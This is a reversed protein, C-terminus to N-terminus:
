GGASADTPQPPDEERLDGRATPLAEPGRSPLSASVDLNRDPLLLPAPGDDDDDHPMQERQPPARRPPTIALADRCETRNGVTECCTTRGNVSQCSTSGSRSCLTTGNVSSCSLSEARSPIGTLVYFVAALPLAFALKSMLVEVARVKTDRECRVTIWAVFQHFRGCSFGPSGKDSVAPRHVTGGCATATARYATADGGISQMTSRRGTGPRRM